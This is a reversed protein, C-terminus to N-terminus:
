RWLIAWDSDCDVLEISNSPIDDWSYLLIRDITKLVLSTLRDAEYTKTKLEFPAFLLDMSSQSIKISRLDFQRIIVSFSDIWNNCTIAFMGINNNLPEVIDDDDISACFENEVQWITWLNRDQVNMDITIFKVRYTWSSRRKLKTLFKSFMETDIRVIWERHCLWKCEFIL